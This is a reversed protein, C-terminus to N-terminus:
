ARSAEVRLVRPHLLFERNIQLIHHGRVQLKLPIGELLLHLDATFPLRGTAVKHFKMLIYNFVEQIYEMSTNKRFLVIFEEEPAISVILVRVDM